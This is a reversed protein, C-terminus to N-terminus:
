PSGDKRVSIEDVAEGHFKTREDGGLLDLQQGRGRPARMRSTWMVSLIRTPMTPAVTVWPPLPQPALACTGARFAEGRYSSVATQVACSSVALADAAANPARCANWRNPSMAACGSTSRMTTHTRTGLCRSRTM